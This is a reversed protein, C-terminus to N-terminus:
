KGSLAEKVYGWWDKDVLHVADFIMVGNTSEVAQRIAKIFQPAYNNYQEVYLSGYLPVAGCTVKKAIDASGKVSYWWYDASKKGPECSAKHAEIAEEETVEYFYNGVFLFDLQEAYGTTNYAPDAWDYETEPHYKESAWNVGMDYYIPYWAGVYDTFDIDPNIKKVREKTEAFFDHINKARWLLWKKYYQGPIRQINNTDSADLKYIDEPWNEIKKGIFKEFAERSAPSFDGSINPYRTRDLVIGDPSYKKVVEEILSFLHNRVEPLIPNVFAAIEENSKTIPVIGDKTYVQVQWEPHKDYAMGIKAVKNGESFVNMSLYAGLGNKKAEKIAKAPFDYDHPRSRGNYEELTPAVKSPYLVYGDTGRIDIIVDTFGCSKANEMMDAIGQESSLAKFNGHADIWLFYRKGQASDDKAPLLAALSLLIFLIFSKM